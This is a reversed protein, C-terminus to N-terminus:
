SAGGARAARCAAVVAAAVVVAGIAWERLDIAALRERPTV